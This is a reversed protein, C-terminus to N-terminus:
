DIFPLYYNHSARDAARGMRTAALVAIALLPLCPPAGEAGSRKWLRTTREIDAFLQRPSRRRLKPAIARVLSQLAEQHGGGFIEGLAPDDVLFMVHSRAYDPRFFHAALAETWEDYTRLSSGTLQDTM